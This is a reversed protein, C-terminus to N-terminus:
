KFSKIIKKTPIKADPKRIYLPTAPFGEENRQLKFAALEAVSEADPLFESGVFQHSTSLHEKIVDIGNGAIIAPKENILSEATEYDCLIAASLPKLTSINFSQLFLEKRRADLVVHLTLDENINQEQKVKWAVAELASIGFFAAKTALLLGHAAALGIRVGTFSGPGQGYVIADIDSLNLGAEKVVENVTPLIKQTHERPALMFRQHVKGDEALLAISCAETSSDLSLITLSPASM